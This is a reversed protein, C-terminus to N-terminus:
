VDMGLWLTACDRLFIDAMGLTGLKVDECMFM